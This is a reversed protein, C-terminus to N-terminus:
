EMLIKYTFKLLVWLSAAYNWQWYYHGLLCTIQKQFEYLKYEWNDCVCVYKPPLTATLLMKKEKSLFKNTSSLNNLIYLETTKSIMNLVWFEFIFVSIERCFLAIKKGLM